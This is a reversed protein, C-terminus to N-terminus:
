RGAPPALGIFPDGGQSVDWPSKKYLDPSFVGAWRLLDLCDAFGQRYIWEEEYRSQESVTEELRNMLKAKASSTGSYGQLAGGSPGRPRPVGRKMGTKGLSADISGAIAQNFYDRFASPM